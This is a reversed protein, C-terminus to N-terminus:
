VQVWGISGDRERAAVEILRRWDPNFLHGAIVEGHAKVGAPLAALEDAIRERCRERTGCRGVAGMRMEPGEGRIMIQWDYVRYDDSARVAELVGMAAAVPDPSAPVAGVTGRCAGGRNEERGTAARGM